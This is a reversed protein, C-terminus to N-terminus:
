VFFRSANKEIDIYNDEKPKQTQTSKIKKNPPVSFHYCVGLHINEKSKTFLNRISKSFLVLCLTSVVALTGLFSRRFLNLRSFIRAKKGIIQYQRGKYDSSVKHGKEDVLRSKSNFKTTPVWKNHLIIESSINIIKFNPM